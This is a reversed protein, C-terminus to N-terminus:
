PTACLQAHSFRCHKRIWLALIMLLMLPVIVALSILDMSLHHGQETGPQEQEGWMWVVLVPKPYFGFVHCALLLQSSGLIPISTLCAVPRVQRQLYIKGADLLDLLFQPCINSILKHLKRSAKM